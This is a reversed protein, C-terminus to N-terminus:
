HCLQGTSTILALTSRSIRAHCMVGSPSDPPQRMVKYRRRTVDYMVFDASGVCACYVRGAHPVSGLVDGVFNPRPTNNQPRNTFVWDAGVLDYNARESGLEDLLRVSGPTAIYSHFNVTNADETTNGALLDAVDIDSRQLANWTGQTVDLAYLTVSRSAYRSPGVGFSYVRLACLQSDGGVLMPLVYLTTDRITPFGNLCVVTWRDESISYREVVGSLDVVYIGDVSVVLRCHSQVATPSALRQWLGGDNSLELRCFRKIVVPTHVYSVADAHVSCLAYLCYGDSVLCELGGLRDCGLVSPGSEAGTRSGDQTVQSRFRIWEDDQIVYVLLRATLDHHTLPFRRGCIIVDVASEVSQREVRQRLAALVEPRRRDLWGAVEANALVNQRVFTTSLYEFEVHELLDLVAVDCPRKGALRCIAVCIEPEPVSGIAPDAFLQAVVSTPLDDIDAIVAFIAPLQRSVAAHVHTVLSSSILSLHFTDVFHLFSLCLAPDDLRVSNMYEVCLSMLERMRLFDALRLVEPLNVLSLAIRGTYMFDLIQMLVIVTM